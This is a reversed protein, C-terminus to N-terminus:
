YSDIKNEIYNIEDETLEFYEYLKKDDWIRDLPVLPAQRFDKKSFRTTSVSSGILLRPLKCRIYSILSDVNETKFEEDYLSIFSHTFCEEKGANFMKGNFVKRGSFGSNLLLMKYGNFLDLSKNVRDGEIYVYMKGESLKENTYCKINYKETKVLSFNKINTGFDNKGFNSRCVLDALTKDTKTKEKLNVIMEDYEVLGQYLVPKKSILEKNERFTCDGNYDRDYLFYCIGGFIQVEKFIDKSKPFVFMDKIHNDKTVIERFDKTNNGAFWKTPIIMNIYKCNSEIARIIFNQYIPKASMENKGKIKEQYPPNGIIADFKM